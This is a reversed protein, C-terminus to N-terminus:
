VNWVLQSQDSSPEFYEEYEGKYGDESDGHFHRNKRKKKKRESRDNSEAIEM